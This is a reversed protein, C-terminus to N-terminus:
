KTFREKIYQYTTEPVFRKILPFDEEKIAQRVKTASIVEEQSELRPIIVLAMEDGFVKAMAENYIETVQSLPEEGMFRTQINLLPAIKKKFLKADLEAQHTAVEAEAQKKLFYSPFTAQSVQYEGSPIVTVTDLHATGNKVLDFRDEFSFQSSDDSLVFVYLHDVEKLATEILYLHGKTFPNANMVVAGANNVKADAQELKKTYTDFDPMGRELFAIAKTEVIKKFGLSRFYKTKDPKTYLFTHTHGNDWLYNSLETMLLTLVNHDQYDDCIALLKIINKYTSGTGILRNGDFVGITYDVQAEPHLNNVDLLDDWRNHMNQDRDLWLKKTTLM